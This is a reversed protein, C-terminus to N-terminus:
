THITKDLAYDLATIAANAASTIDLGALDTGVTRDSQPTVQGSIYGYHYPNLQKHM